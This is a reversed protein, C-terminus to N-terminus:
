SPPTNKMNHSIYFLEFTQFRNHVKDDTRTQFDLISKLLVQVDGEMYQFLPYLLAKQVRDAHHIVGNKDVMQAYLAKTSTNQRVEFFPM